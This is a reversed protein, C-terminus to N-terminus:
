GIKEAFGRQELEGAGVDLDLGLVVGEAEAQAVKEVGGDLARYALPNKKAEGPGGSRFQYGRVRHWM